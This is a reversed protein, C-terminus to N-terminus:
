EQPKRPAGLGFAYGRPKILMACRISHYGLLIVHLIWRVKFVQSPSILFSMWPLMHEFSIRKSQSVESGSENTNNPFPRKSSSVARLEQIVQMLDELPTFSLRAPIAVVNM